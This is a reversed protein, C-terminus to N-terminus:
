YSVMSLYRVDSFMKYGLTLNTDIKMFLQPKSM